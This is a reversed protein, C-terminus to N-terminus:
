QELDWMETKKEGYDVQEKIEEVGSKAQQEMGSEEMAPM